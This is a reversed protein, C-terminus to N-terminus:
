GDSSGASPPLWCSGPRGRVREFREDCVEVTLWVAPFTLRSHGIYVNMIAIQLSHQILHRSLQYRQDLIYGGARGVDM